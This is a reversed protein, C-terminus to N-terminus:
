QINKSLYMEQGKLFCYIVEGGVRDHGEMAVHGDNRSYRVYSVDWWRVLRVKTGVEGKVVRGVKGRRERM